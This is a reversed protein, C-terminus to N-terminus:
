KKVVVSVNDSSPFRLKWMEAKLAAEYRSGTEILDDGRKALVSHGVGTVILVRRVPLVGRPLGGSLISTVINPM